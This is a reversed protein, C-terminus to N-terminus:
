VKPPQERSLAEASAKSGKWRAVLVLADDTGKGHQALIRTALRQPRDGLFVGIAFDDDLGDTAFILTDGLRIPLVAASLSPLQYGVVGGRLLLNEQAPLTQTGARLLVGAVNGVGLWTLTEDPANFLAVSMVVGRTQLLAEHCRQMLNIIPSHAYTELSTIAIKAAAAAEQGHGLGDVVAALLGGSFPQVLYQDGSVSQGGLALTAVGWEILSNSTLAEM